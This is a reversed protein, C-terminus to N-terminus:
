IPLKRFRIRNDEITIMFDGVLQDVYEQFLQDLKEQIFISTFVSTRFQIVSAHPTQNFALLKGFDM